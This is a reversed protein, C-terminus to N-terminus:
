CHHPNINTFWPILKINIFCLEKIPWLKRFKGQNVYDYMKIVKWNLRSTYLWSSNTWLWAFSLSVDASFEGRLSEATTFSAYTKKEYLTEIVNLTWTLKSSDKMGLLTSMWFKSKSNNSVLYILRIHEMALCHDSITKDISFKPYM